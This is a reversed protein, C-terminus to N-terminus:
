AGEGVAEPAPSTDSPSTTPGDVTLPIKESSLAHQRETLWACADDLNRFKHGYDNLLTSYMKRADSRGHALDSRKHVRPDLLAVMGRDNTSRILRGFAQELLLAADSGYIADLKKWKGPIDLLDARTDDVPNQPSRPVTDIIVLSLAEGPIDVGTMWGRTAVLVAHESALFRERLVAPQSGDWQDIVTVGPVTARLHEAMRRGNDSNSTLVLAHGDNAEVLKAADHRAMDMHKDRNYRGEVTYRPDSSTVAPCYAASESYATTFASAYEHIDATLGCDDAFGDNITASVFVLNLPTAEGRKWWPVDVAEGGNDERQERAEIERREDPSLPTYATFLNDQLSTAIHVTKANLTPSELNKRNFTPAPRGIWRAVGPTHQASEDLATAMLAARTTVRTLRKMYQEDKTSFGDTAPKISRVIASLYQQMTSLWTHIAERCEATPDDGDGLSITSSRDRDPIFAQLSANLSDAAKKAGDKVKEWEESTDNLRLTNDAARSLKFIEDASLEISGQDRVKSPLIHAEDVILHDIQGVNQNSIIVPVAKESQIALFTHNTVIIDAESARTRSQKAPCMAILPCHEPCENPQQTVSEMLDYANGRFQGRDTIVPGSLADLVGDQSAWELVDAVATAPRTKGDLECQQHGGAMTTNITVRSRANKAINEILRHALEIKHHADRVPNAREDTRPKTDYPKTANQVSEDSFGMIPAANRILERPCVYNSFGKLVQINITPADPGLADLGAQLHPADSTVIQEQLNKSDTSIVSREGRCAAVFAPALYAFSKGTGTPAKGILVGGPASNLTNTVDRCLDAQGPRPEVGATGLKHAVAAALLRTPDLTNM